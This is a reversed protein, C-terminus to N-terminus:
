RRGDLMEQVAARGPDDGAQQLWQGAMEPDSEVLGKAIVLAGASRLRGVPLAGVWKAAEMPERGFWSGVAARAVGNVWGGDPAGKLWEAAAAPQTKAWQEVQRRAGIVAGGGLVVSDEVKGLVDAPLSRWAVVEGAAERYTGLDEGSLGSEVRSVGEPFRFAAEGLVRVAQTRM